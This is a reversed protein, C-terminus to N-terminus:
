CDCKGSAQIMREDLHNLGAALALGEQAWAKEEKNSGTAHVAGPLIAGRYRVLTLGLVIESIQWDLIYIETPTEGKNRPLWEEGSWSVQRWNITQTGVPGPYITDEYVCGPRWGIRNLVRLAM